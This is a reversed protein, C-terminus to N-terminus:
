IISRNFLEERARETLVLLIMSSVAYHRLWNFQHETDLQREIVVFQMRDSAISTTQLAIAVAIPHLAVSVASFRHSYRTCHYNQEEIHLFVM